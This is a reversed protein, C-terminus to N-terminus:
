LPASKGQQFYSDCQEDLEQALLIAHAVVVPVDDRDRSFDWGGRELEMVPYYGTSILATLIPLADCKLDLSSRPLSM